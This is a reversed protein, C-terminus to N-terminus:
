PQAASVSSDRAFRQAGQVRALPQDIASLRHHAITNRDADIEGARDYAIARAHIADDAIAGLPMSGHDLDLPAASVFSGIEPLRDCRAGVATKNEIRVLKIDQRRGLGHLYRRVEGGLHDWEIRQYAFEAHM